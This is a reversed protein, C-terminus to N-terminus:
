SCGKHWSKKHSPLSSQLLPSTSSIASPKWWRFLMKQGEFPLITLLIGPIALPFDSYNIVLPSKFSLISKFHHRSITPIHISATSITSHASHGANLMAFVTNKQTVCSSRITIIISFLSSHSNKQAWVYHRFMHWQKYSWVFGVIEQNWQSKM